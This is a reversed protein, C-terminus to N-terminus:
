IRPRATKLSAYLIRSLEDCDKYISKFLNLEMYNTEHLLKLWYQTERAEKYAISFKSSFDAKSIGGKAEQINAGISTGSRLIQKSMVFEKKTETLFQYLKVIRISFSFSKPVLVDNYKM